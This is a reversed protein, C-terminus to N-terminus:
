KKGGNTETIGLYGRGIARLRQCEAERKQGELRSDSTEVDKKRLAYIDTNEYAPLPVAAVDYLKSIKRVTYTIEGDVSRDEEDSVSKFAFSMKDIDGRKILAFLDRGATIPALSCRVWLGDPRNDLILTGNKVRGMVMVDESHNYRFFCESTDTHETKAQDLEVATPTIKEYIKRGAFECLLTRDNYTIAKGEIIMEEPNDKSAEAARIEFMRHYSTPRIIKELEERTLEKPM